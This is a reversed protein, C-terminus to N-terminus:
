KLNNSFENIWLLGTLTKGDRIEGARLMKHIEAPAFCGVEIREDAEPAAKAPALGRAEVMFMRESLFGPSPYFDFLRRVSRARYGAEELLERRAAKEPKEGRKLGGAVLEWLPQRAAHRYQRVLVVRGDDLFPLVVVSGPHRVIERVVKIGGPEVVEDIELRIVRGRYITKRAIVRAQRHL